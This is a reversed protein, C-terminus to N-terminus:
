PDRAVPKIGLTAHARNLAALTDMGAYVPESGAMPSKSQGTVFVLRAGADKLARAATRGDAAVQAESACLCALSAGSRKFAEAMEKVSAFGDNGIAEVGGAEFLSKAFMAREGFDAAAGLNALFIQPRKGTAAAVDAADRLREFPAAVRIRPLAEAEIKADIAPAAPRPVDLVAVRAENLDPFESTGTIPETRHAVDRARAERVTTLARQILGSALAAALGGAKEIKQFLKWVTVALEDTLTEIAGSGTGADPVRHLNTEELLILQTNRAIRRAFHDPLGLAASHPLVTISNAGGLGAAFTAVTTRLWNAYPDRRTTMRWATEAHLQIPQPALGAAEEIRAWLKRMARFKALSIFQDADAALMFAIQQRGADLEVGAEELARWCAVAAALAFALEQAESGGADHVPRGDALFVQGRFGGRLLEAAFRARRALAADALEPLVGASALTGLPDFGLSLDLKGAAVGRKAALALITEAAELDRSGAELRIAIAALDIDALARDFTGADPKALGYGNAAAAGAVLFALGTAGNKLDELAEANAVAADPHDVRQMVAWPAGAPRGAIARVGAAREYIPEIAIGDRTRSVLREYPTGKLTREVLALWDKRTAPPFAAALSLDAM